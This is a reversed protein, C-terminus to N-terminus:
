GHKLAWDYPIEPTFPPLRLMEDPRHPESACNAMVVMKDGYAKYGNAIGPPIQVLVYNDEGFFVEQLTGKTPSDPRLDYMVLKARGVMVANNVTMTQHIHWAKVVGPWACSFYIEGFSKFHPDTAKLMHMIKGREDVIQRLPVVKVGDIEAM